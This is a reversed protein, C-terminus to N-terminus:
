RGPQVVSVAGYARRLTWRNGDKVLLQTFENDVRMLDGPEANQLEGPAGTEAGYPSLDRPEGDVTVTEAATKAESGPAGSAWLPVPAHPTPNVAPAATQAGSMGVLLGLCAGKAIVKVVSM